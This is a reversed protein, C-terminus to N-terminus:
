TYTTAKGYHKKLVCRQGNIIIDFIFLATTISNNETYCRRATPEHRMRVETIIRRCLQCLELLCVLKSNPDFISMLNSVYQTVCFYQNISCYDLM